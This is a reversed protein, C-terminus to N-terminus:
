DPFSSSCAMLPHLGIENHSSAAESFRLPVTQSSWVSSTTAQFFTKLPRPPTLTASCAWTLWLCGGEGESKKQTGAQGGNNLGENAGTLSSATTSASGWWMWLLARLGPRLSSRRQKALHFSYVSLLPTSPKRQSRLCWSPRNLNHFQLLSSLFSHHHHLKVADRLYAGM